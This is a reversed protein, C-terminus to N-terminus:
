VGGKYEKDWWEHVLAFSDPYDNGFVENFKDRNTIIPNDKGWKQVMLVASNPFDKEFERCPKGTKNNYMSIPCDICSIKKCMRDKTRLFDVATMEM